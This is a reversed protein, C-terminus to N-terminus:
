HSSSRVLRLFTPLCGNLKACSTGRERRYHTRWSIQKSYASPLFTGTRHTPWLDDWHILSHLGLALHSPYFPVAAKFAEAIATFDIPM